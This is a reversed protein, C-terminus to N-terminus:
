PSGGRELRQRLREVEAQLREVRALLEELLRRNDVAATLLMNDMLAPINSSSMAGVESAWASVLSDFAKRRAQSALVDRYYRRLNEVERQLAARFPSTVRGLGLVERVTFRVSGPPRSPHKVLVAECAPERGGIRRVYVLVAPLHQLYRGGEPRPLEGKRSFRPRCGAVMAVGHEACSQWLRSVVHKLRALRERGLRGEARFLGAINYVLLLKVGHGGTILRAVDEVVQMQQEGSFALFVDVRDLAEAPDLGSAKVLSTLLGTDLVNKEVRYSGCYLYVARGGFGGMGVPLLSSVLIRYLLPDLCSESGYFLHFVGPRVGGGLLRDLSEVGTSLRPESLEV